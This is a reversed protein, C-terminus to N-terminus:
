FIFLKFFYKGTHVPMHRTLNYHANFVKGCENCPYTRQKNNSGTSSTPSSRSGAPSSRSTPTPPSTQKFVKAQLLPELAPPHQPPALIPRPPLQPASSAAHHMGPNSPPLHPLPPPLGLHPPAVGRMFHRSFDQQQQAFLNGFTLLSAAKWAQPFGLLQYHRILANGYDSM